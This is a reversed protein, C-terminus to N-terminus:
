RVFRELATTKMLLVISTILVWAMMVIIGIWPMLLTIAVLVGVWGVWRPLARFRIAIVSAALTYDILPPAFVWAYNWQLVFLMKAVQTDTGASISTTALNIVLIGLWVAISVLGGGYAVSALWGDEGEADQLRSRLYSLFWFFALLGFLLFYGARDIQDAQDVFAQAIAASPSDPSLDGPTEGAIGFSVVTLVVFLAGSLAGIREWNM